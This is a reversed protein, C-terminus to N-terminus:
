RAPVNKGILVWVGLSHRIRTVYWGECGGLCSQKLPFSNIGTGGGWNLVVCM